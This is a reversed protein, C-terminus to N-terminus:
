KKAKEPFSSAHYSCKRCRYWFGSEALQGWLAVDTSRCKPCYRVWKKKKDKSKKKAKLILKDIKSLSM